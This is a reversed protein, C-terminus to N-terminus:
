RWRASAAMSVTCSVRCTRRRAAPSARTGQIVALLNKTRHTLERLLQALEDQRRRHETTDISTTLLGVVEGDRWLPEISQDFYWTAGDLTVVLENQVLQKEALARLSAARISKQAGEPLVENPLHGVFPRADLQSPLNDVM